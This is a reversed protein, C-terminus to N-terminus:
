IPTGNYTVVGNTRNVFVPCKEDGMNGYYRAGSRKDYQIMSVLLQAFANYHVGNQVDNMLQEAKSLCSELVLDSYRMGGLPYLNTSDNLKGTNAEYKYTLVYAADPKPYLLLELRQGIVGTSAKYRIAAVRPRGAVDNNNKYSRILGEGSVIINAYHKDAAYTLDGVIRGFDDPLDYDYDNIICTLTTVPSLFSWSYGPEVGQVAPPFYFQRVGAQVVADIDALQSASWNASTRGYGLFYGVQSSLDTYSLSLTSETM